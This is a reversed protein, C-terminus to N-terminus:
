SGGLVGFYSHNIPNGDLRIDISFEDLSIKDISQVSGIRVGKPFVGGLGSTLVPSTTEIGPEISDATVTCRALMPQGAGQANCPLGNISAPLVHSIDSFLIVEILGLHQTKTQGIFTKDIAVPLNNLVNLQNPNQLHLIHKSCCLYNALGFSGIKFIRVQGVDMLNQLGHELDLLDTRILQLQKELFVKNKFLQLQDRLQHNERILTKKDENLTNFALLRSFLSGLFLQSYIGTAQVGGRLSSFTQYNIDSLLLTISLLCALIYKTAPTHTPTVRAM